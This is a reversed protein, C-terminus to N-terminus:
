VDLDEDTEGGSLPFKKELDEEKAKKRAAIEEPTLDKEEWLVLDEDGEGGSLPFDANIKDLAREIWNEHHEQKPAENSGDQKINDNENSM